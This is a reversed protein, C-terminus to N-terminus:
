EKVFKGSGVVKHHSDVIRVFYMGDSIDSIHLQFLLEPSKETKTPSSQGPLDIKRGVYDYVEVKYQPAEVSNVRMKINILDNAPNPYIALPYMGKAIADIGINSVTDHTRVRYRVTSDCGYINQFVQDILTDHTISWVYKDRWCDSLDFSDCVFVPNTFTDAHCVYMFGIQVTDGINFPVDVFTYSASAPRHQILRKVPLGGIMDTYLGDASYWIYNFQVSDHMCLMVTDILSTDYVAVDDILMYSGQDTAGPLNTPCSIQTHLYYPKFNGIVLFSDKGDSLYSGTIRQWGTKTTIPNSLANEFQPTEHIRNGTHNVIQTDSFYFGLDYTCTGVEGMSIYCEIAYRKNSDLRSKFSGQVYEQFTSDDTFNLFGGYCEGGHPFEFGPFVRPPTSLNRYTCEHGANFAYKLYYDSSGFNPDSWNTVQNAEFGGLAPFCSDHVEFGPNLVRNSQAEVMSFNVIVFILIFIRKIM